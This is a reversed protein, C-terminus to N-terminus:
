LVEMEPGLEVFNFSKPKGFKEWCSILWITIIESFLNSITPATVFDGEELLFKKQIIDLKLTIFFKKLLSM